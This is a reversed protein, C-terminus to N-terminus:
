CCMTRCVCRMSRKLYMRENLRCGPSVSLVPLINVFRVPVFLSESLHEKVPHRGAKIALPGDLRLLPRVMGDHLTVFDAFGRLLDLFSVCEAIGIIDHAHAQIQHLCDHILEGTMLLIETFAEARRDDLSILDDTSCLVTKGGSANARQILM